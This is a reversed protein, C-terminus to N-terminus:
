AAQRTDSDLAKSCIEVLGPSVGEADLLTQLAARMGTQRNADFMHWRNLDCRNLIWNSVFPIVRDIRLVQKAFVEYGRGSPTNLGYRNEYFFTEAFTYLRSFIAIDFDDSDMLADVRDATDARAASIQAKCWRDIVLQEDRWRNYFLDLAEDRQASATTCLLTLGAVQDTINASDAVQRFALDLMEPEGSKVLYELAVHKIRRRGIAASSLDNAGTEEFTRYLRMFDDSARAGIAALMAERAAHIGDVDIPYREAGLTREDPLSILDARMRDSLSPDRLAHRFGDLLAESVVPAGGARWTEAMGQLAQTTLKQGAEWRAFDDSDHKFLHVLDEIGPDYHVRVPACARRLVSLAPRTTVGELVWTQESERLELVATSDSAAKGQMTFPLDNGDPGVLGIAFPVHMPEKDPQGLTPRTQQRLTVAYTATAPDHRGDVFIECTGAQFYWKRFQTLDLGGITEFAGLFEDITVSQSAYEDFFWSVVKCFRERGLMAMLMQIIEQGKDYVTNTYLNRPEIYAEWIPAHAVASDDETFQNNRIHKAMRIRIPGLGAFDALFVQERFRTLGEKLSVYFWSRNTVRDGSWNHFYEHAITKMRYEYDSDPTVRPDAIFWNLDYLNLGKNEMAGPGGNLVVCHFTDLDYDRGFVQEDWRMSRLIVDMSERCQDIYRANAHVRVDIERGSASIFTENLHELTGAAIAFIYCPKPFPDYFVAYHRGDDLVGTGAPNGSALLTPFRDGDAILKATFVSLVDPRDLFFTFKRFAEAEFNTFLEGDKTPCLGMMTTNVSPRIAVTTELEFVDPPSTLTLGEADFHYDAETLDRGDLVVRLLELEQGNLHLDRGGPNVRVNRRVRLRSRVVTREWGLEVELDTYPIHFDAERYANRYIRAPVAGESM